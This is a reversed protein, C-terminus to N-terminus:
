KSSILSSSASKLLKGDTVSTGIGISYNVMSPDVSIMGAGKCEQDQYIVGFQGPAVGRDAESLQIQWREADIKLLQGSATRPGHRLKMKYIGDTPVNSIWNPCSIEFYRCEREVARSEHTVFIINESTNKAMVFWPGGSLGLGRRQGITYFWYGDHRGLIKGTDIDIIKGIKRGLHFAIFDTYKIKGLFCIGQSDPRQMTALKFQAAVNRVESKILHGIPFLCRRLQEQGLHSLFYTQDKVQDVACLLRSSGLGHEVRAYHGSAIHDFQNGILRHFAGFKIRQNCFIDPSPTRGARLEQLTYEVVQEQYDGQLSVVELAVDLRSCIERVFKLDEEWPCEGLFNLEDELWIKLYFARLGPTGANKLLALAVSSDVGGSVLVAVSM